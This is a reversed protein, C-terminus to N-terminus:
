QLYNLMNQEFKHVMKSKAEANRNWYNQLFILADRNICYNYSQLIIM